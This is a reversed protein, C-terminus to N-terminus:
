YEVNGYLELLTVIRQLTFYPKCFQEYKILTIPKVWHWQDSQEHLQQTTNCQIAIFAM